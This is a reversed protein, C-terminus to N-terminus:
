GSTSDATYCVLAANHNGLFSPLTVADDPIALLSSDPAQDGVPISM